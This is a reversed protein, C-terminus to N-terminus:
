ATTSYTRELSNAKYHIDPPYLHQPSVSKEQTQNEYLVLTLSLVFFPSVNDQILKGEEEKNNKNTYFQIPWEHFIDIM